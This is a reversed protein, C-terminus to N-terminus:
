GSCLRILLRTLSLIIRQMPKNTAIKFVRKKIVDAPVGVLSAAIGAFAAGLTCGVVNNIGFPETMAYRRWPEYM